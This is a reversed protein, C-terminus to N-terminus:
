DCVMASTHNKSSSVALFAPNALHSLFMFHSLFM